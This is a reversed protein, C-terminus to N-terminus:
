KDIYYFFNLKCRLSFIFLLALIWALLLVAFPLAGAAQRGKECASVTCFATRADCLLCAGLCFVGDSQFESADMHLDPRLCLWLAFGGHRVIKRLSSVALLVYAFAFIVFSLAFNCFINYFHGDAVGLRAHMDGVM